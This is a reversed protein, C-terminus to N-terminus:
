ENLLNKIFEIGSQSVTTKLSERNYQGVREVEIKKVLFYKADIFRKYPLNNGEQLIKKQRLLKFLQNRGILKKNIKISCINAVKSMDFWTEQLEEELTM